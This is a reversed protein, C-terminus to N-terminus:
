KESQRNHTRVGWARDIDDRMRYYSGVMPLFWTDGNYFPLGPFRHNEFACKYDRARAVKRAVQYGLYTMMSVGSGNCGMCYHLGDIKGMHATADLTFGLLGSWAYSVKVGAIQPFREVMAKQLLMGIKEAGVQTFRARGGFIVRTGDPSPRYYYLVRKSDSIMKGTPFLEKMTSEPLQESAIIHSAVPIIRKSFAPTVASTYGNTAVIVDDVVCSGASTTVKWQKGQQELKTVPTNSIFQVGRRLCADILGKVYLAPQITAGDDTVMGGFYYDSGVESRQEERSLVHSNTATTANLEAARKRMDEYHGPTAAGVFRGAHRLQCDINEEEIIKLVLPFAQGADTRLERIVSSPLTQKGTFSKGIGLAAGVGGGNRSSAGWGIEHADVVVVQVNRKSLELAASLGGFGSGIILVPARAPLSAESRMPAFDNWWYCRAQFDDALVSHAM